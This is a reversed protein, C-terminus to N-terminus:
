IIFHSLQVSEIFSIEDTPAEEAPVVDVLLDVTSIVPNEVVHSDGQRFITGPKLKERNAAM